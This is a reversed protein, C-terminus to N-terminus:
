ASKFYRDISSQELAREEIVERANEEYGLAKLLEGYSIPKSSRRPPATWEECNAHTYDILQGSTMHGFERWIKRIVELDSESLELLEDEDVNDVILRLDNGDRDQLWKRWYGSKIEHKCIDYSISMNPGNEMAYLNDGTLPDGFVRFSEREALYMLKMLKLIEISGNNEHAFFAAIEAAKEENYHM